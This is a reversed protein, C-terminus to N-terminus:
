NGACVTVGSPFTGRAVDRLTGITHGTVPRGTDGRLQFLRESGCDYPVFGSDEVQDCGRFPRV